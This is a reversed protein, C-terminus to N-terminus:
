KPFRVTVMTGKDPESEISVSANHLKAAHKVIALGLGTGGVAKSRSKDVRYFREFVRDIHEPPIGIGTDSVTLVAFEPSDAVTITVSGNDRNYKIANECLNHLIAGILAPYANVVAHDGTVTMEIGRDEETQELSQRLTHLESDAAEFLDINARQTDIIGDDLKSLKMIDEVLATVRRAESYIKEGFMPIDNPKAMGNMILEAYGSISQLPTKLEHSVNSTFERRMLEARERETINFIFLVAGMTKGESVVPSENVQYDVDGMNIVSEATKGARASAILPGFTGLNSLSANETESRKIGLIRLAARNISIINGDSNLLVLGERMYDTATEFEAQKSKLQLAQQKIESKQANIREILPMLEVYIDVDSLDELDVSNVPKVIRSTSWRAILFSIVIAVVAIIIIRYTLGLIPAFFTQQKETILVVSGDSLRRAAYVNKEVLSPLIKEGDSFGQSRAKVFAAHEDKDIEDDTTDFLVNGDSDLWMINHDKTKIGELYSIGYQETGYAALTTQDELSSYQVDSFYRYTDGLIVLVSVILVILSALCVLRFVRSTLKQPRKERKKM